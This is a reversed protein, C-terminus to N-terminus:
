GFYPLFWCGMKGSGERQSSFCKRRRQRIIEAVAYSEGGGDGDDDVTMTSTSRSEGARGEKAVCASSVGTERCGQALIDDPAAACDEGGAGSNAGRKRQRPGGVRSRLGTNRRGQKRGRDEVAAARARTRRRWQEGGAGRESLKPDGRRRSWSECVSM